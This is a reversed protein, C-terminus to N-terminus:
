GRRWMLMWLFVAFAIAMLALLFFPNEFISEKKEVREGERKPPREIGSMRVALEFDYVVLTEPAVEVEYTIGPILWLASPQIAKSVFRGDAYAEMEAWITQGWTETGEERARLWFINHDIAYPPIADAVVTFIIEDVAHPMKVIFLKAGEECKKLTKMLGSKCRRGKRRIM